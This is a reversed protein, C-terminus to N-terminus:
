ETVKWVGSLVYQMFTVASYHLTEGDVKIQMSTGNNDMEAEYEKDTLTHLIKMYDERRKRGGDDTNREVDITYLMSIHCVLPYNAWVNWDKNTFYTM